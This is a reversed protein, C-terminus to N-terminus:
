RSALCSVLGGAQCFNALLPFNSSLVEFIVLKSAGLEVGSILGRLLAGAKGSVLFPCFILPSSKKQQTM